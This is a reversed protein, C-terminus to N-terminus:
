VPSAWSSDKTDFQNFGSSLGSPYIVYTINDSVTPDTIALNLKFGALGTPASDMVINATGTGDTNMVVNSITIRQAASVGYPLFFIAIIIILVIFNMRKM